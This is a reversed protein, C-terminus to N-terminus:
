MGVKKMREALWSQKPRRAYLPYRNPSSLLSVSFALRPNTNRILELLRVLDVLDKVRFYSGGAAVIVFPDEAVVSTWTAPVSTLRSEANQFYIRDEGWNHRYIVQEFV